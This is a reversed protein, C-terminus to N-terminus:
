ITFGVEMRKFIMLTLNLYKKLVCQSGGEFFICFGTSFYKLHLVM